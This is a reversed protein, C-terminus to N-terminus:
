RGKKLRSFLHFLELVTTLANLKTNILNNPIRNRIVNPPQLVRAAKSYIFIFSQFNTFQLILEMHTIKIDTEM